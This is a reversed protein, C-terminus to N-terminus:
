SYKIATRNNFCCYYNFSDDANLIDEKRDM